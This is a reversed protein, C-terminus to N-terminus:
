QLAKIYKDPLLASIEYVEPYNHDRGRISGPIAQICTLLKSPAPHRNCFSLYDRQIRQMEKNRDAPWV